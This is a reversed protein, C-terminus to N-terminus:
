AKEARQHRKLAFISRKECVKCTDSMDTFDQTLWNHRTLALLTFDIICVFQCMIYDVPHAGRNSSEDLVM